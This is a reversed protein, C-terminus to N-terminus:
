EVYQVYGLDVEVKELEVKFVLIGNTEQCIFVLVFVELGDFLLFCIKSGFVM